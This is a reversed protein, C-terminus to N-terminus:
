GWGRNKPDTNMTSVISCVIAQLTRTPMDAPKNEVLYGLAEQLEENTIDQIGITNM